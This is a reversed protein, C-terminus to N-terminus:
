DDDDDDDWKGKKKTSGKSGSKFPVYYTTTSPTYIGFTVGSLVYDLFTIQHKVMYDSEGEVLDKARMKSDGILGGIFHSNHVTQVKVM